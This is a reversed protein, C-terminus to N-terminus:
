KTGQRCDRIDGTLKGILELQQKNREGASSAVLGLLYAIFVLTGLMVLLVAFIVPTAKMSDAVSTVAKGAEETLGGM